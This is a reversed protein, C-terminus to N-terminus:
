PQDIHTHQIVQHDTIPVAHGKRLAAPQLFLALGPGGQMRWTGFSLFDNQRQGTMRIFFLSESAATLANQYLACSKEALATV